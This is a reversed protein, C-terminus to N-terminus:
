LNQLLSLSTGTKDKTVYLCQSPLTPIATLTNPFITFEKARSQNLWTRQKVKKACPPSGLNPPTLPHPTLTSPCNTGPMPKSHGKASSIDGWEWLFFIQKRRSNGSGTLATMQTPLWHESSNRTLGVCLGQFCKWGRLPTHTLLSSSVLPSFDEWTCIGLKASGDNSGTM